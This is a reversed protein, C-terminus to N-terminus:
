LFLHVKIYSNDTELYFNIFDNLNMDIEKSNDIFILYGGWSYDSVEFKYKQSTINEIKYCYFYNDYELDIRSTYSKKGEEFIWVKISSAGSVGFFFIIFDKM